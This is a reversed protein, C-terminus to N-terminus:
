KRKFISVVIGLMGFLSFIAGIIILTLNGSGFGVVISEEPNNPNYKVEMRSGIFLPHEKKSDSVVTYRKVNVYYEVIESMTCFEDDGDNEYYDDDCEESYEYDYVIGVTKTYNKSANYKYFCIGLTISGIIM